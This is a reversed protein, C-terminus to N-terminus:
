PEPLVGDVPREVHPDDPLEPVELGEEVRLLEDRFPEDRPLLQPPEEEPDERLEPELVRGLM